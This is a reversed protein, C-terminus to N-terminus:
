KNKTIGSRLVEDIFIYFYDQPNVYLSKTHKECNRKVIFINSRDTLENM